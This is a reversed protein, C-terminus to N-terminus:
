FLVYVWHFIQVEEEMYSPLVWCNRVYSRFRGDICSELTFLSKYWNSAKRTIIINIRSTLLPLDITRKPYCAYQRHTIIYFVIILVLTFRYPKSPLTNLRYVQFRNPMVQTSKFGENLVHNWHLWTVNVRSTLFPTYITLRHHSSYVLM